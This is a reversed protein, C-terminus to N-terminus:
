YKNGLGNPRYKNVLIRCSTNKNQLGQIRGYNNAYQDSYYDDIIEKNTMKKGDTKKKYKNKILDTNERFDSLLKATKAGREGSQAAECNVKAHFYKDSNKTNAEKMDHYNKSFSSIAKKIQKLEDLTSYLREERSLKDWLENLLSNKEKEEAQKKRQM